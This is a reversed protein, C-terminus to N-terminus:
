SKHQRFCHKRRGFFRPNELAGFGFTKPTKCATLFKTKSAVFVVHKDAVIKWYVLFKNNVIIKSANSTGIIEKLRAIIKKYQFRPIMFGERNLAYEYGLHIDSIILCDKILLASDVIEAGYIENTKM